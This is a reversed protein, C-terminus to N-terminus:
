ASKVGARNAAAQLSKDLTALPVQRRLALELYCADYVTLQFKRSLRLLDDLQAHMADLEVSSRLLHTMKEICEDAQVQSLLKRREAVLIGNGFELTWLQPSVGRAKGAALQDRVRVAYPHVPADVFWSLAVSADLVFSIM